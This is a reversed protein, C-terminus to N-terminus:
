KFNPGEGLALRLASSRVFADRLEDRSLNGNCDGDLM